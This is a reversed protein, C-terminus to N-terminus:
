TRYRVDGHPEEGHKEVTDAGANPTRASAPATCTPAPQPLEVRGGESTFVDQARIDFWRNATKRRLKTM